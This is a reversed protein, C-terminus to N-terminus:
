VAVLLERLEFKFYDVCWEKLTQIIELLESESVLHEGVRDVGSEVVEDSYALHNRLHAGM